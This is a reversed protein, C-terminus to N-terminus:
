DVINIKIATSTAFTLIPILFILLALLLKIAAAFDNTLGANAFIITPIALPLIL